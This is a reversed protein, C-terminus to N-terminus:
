TLGGPNRHGPPRALLALEDEDLPTLGAAQHLAKVIEESEGSLLSIHSDGGYDGSRVSQLREWLQQQEQNLGSRLRVFWLADCAVEIEDNELRM